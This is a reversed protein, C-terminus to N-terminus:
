AFSLTLCLVSLVFLFFHDCLTGKLFREHYRKGLAFIPMGVGGIKIYMNKCRALAILSNSWESFVTTDRQNAYLGVSVPGGLHNLIIKTTPFTEALTQVEKLQFHYGRHVYIFAYTRRAHTHTHLLSCLVVVLPIFPPPFLETGKYM